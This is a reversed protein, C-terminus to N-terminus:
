VCIFESLWRSPNSTTPGFHADPTESGVKQPEWFDHIKSLQSDPSQAPPFQSQSLQSLTLSFTCLFLRWGM